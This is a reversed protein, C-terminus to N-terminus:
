YRLRPMLPSSDPIGMARLAPVLYNGVGDFSASRTDQELTPRAEKSARKISWLVRRLNGDGDVGTVSLHEGIIKGKRPPGARLMELEREWSEGIWVLGHGRLIRVKEGVVRWFIYKETQDAFQVQMM